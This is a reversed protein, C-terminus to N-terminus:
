CGSSGRTMGFWGATMRFRSEPDLFDRYLDHWGPNGKEVLAIKWERKWHKLQKERAIVAKPDPFEEYYVLEDVHYKKAFGEILGQQHENIRRMLDNTVGIYLTGNKGSAILYVYYSHMYIM